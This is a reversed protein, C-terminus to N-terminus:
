YFCCVEKQLLSLVGLLLQVFMDITLFFQLSPILSLALWFCTGVKEVHGINVNEFYIDEGASSTFVGAPLLPVFGIDRLQIDAPHQSGTRPSQDSNSCAFLLLGVTSVRLSKVPSPKMLRVDLFISKCHSLELALVKVRMNTMESILMDLKM